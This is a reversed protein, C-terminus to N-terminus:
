SRTNSIQGGSSSVASRSPRRRSATTISTSSGSARSAAPCARRAESIREAPATGGGARAGPKSPQRVNLSNPACPRCSSRSAAAAASSGRRGARPRSRRSTRGASRRRGPCGAGGARARAPAPRRRSARTRSGTARGGRRGARRRSRSRRRPRRSDGRARGTGRGVLEAGHVVDELGVALERARQQWGRGIRDLADAQEHARDVRERGPQPQRDVRTVRERHGAPAGGLRGAAAPRRRDRARRRRREGRRGRAARRAPPRRRRASRDRGVQRALEGGVARADRVGRAAQGGLRAGAQERRQQVQGGDAMEAGVAVALPQGVREPFPRQLPQALRLSERLGCPDRDAPRRSRRGIIPRSAVSTTIAAVGACTVRSDSGNWPMQPIM